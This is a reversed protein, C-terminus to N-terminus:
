GKNLDNFRQVGTMTEKLLFSAFFFLSCGVVGLGCKHIHGRQSIIEGNGFLWYCLVVVCTM